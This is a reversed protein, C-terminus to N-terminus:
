CSPGSGMTKTLRTLHLALLSLLSQHFPAYFGVSRETGPLNALSIQEISMELSRFLKTDPGGTQAPTAESLTGSTQVLPAEQTRSEVGREDGKRTRRASRGGREDSFLRSEGKTSSDAKRKDGHGHM